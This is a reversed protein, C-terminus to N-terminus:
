ILCSFDYEQANRTDGLEIVPADYGCKNLAEKIIGLSDDGIETDEEEFRNYVVAAVPIEHIAVLEFLSLSHHLSGLRSSTVIILPYGRDRVFTMANTDRTMPACLGGAGEVLVYEFSRRLDTITKAIKNLSIERGEQEAALHPSCAKKFVYPCTEGELDEPLPSIGM